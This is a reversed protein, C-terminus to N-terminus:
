SESLVSNLIKWFLGLVVTKQETGRISERWSMRSSYSPTEQPFPCCNRKNLSWLESEEEPGYHGCLLPSGQPGSYLCSHEHKMPLSYAELRRSPCPSLCFKSRRLVRRPSGMRRGDWLPQIGWLWAAQRHSHFLWLQRRGPSHCYRSSQCTFLCVIGHKLITLSTTITILGAGVKM